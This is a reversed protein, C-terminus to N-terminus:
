EVTLFSRTVQQHAVLLKYHAVILCYCIDVKFSIRSGDVQVAVWWVVFCM